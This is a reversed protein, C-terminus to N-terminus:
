TTAPPPEPEAPRPGENSAADSSAPEDAAGTYLSLAAVGHRITRRLTLQGLQAPPKREHHHEWVLVSKSNVLESEALRDLVRVPETDSYPPDALVLDYTDHLRSIAQEAAVAHVTARGALGTAALNAEILRRAAPKSEVFDVWEAGRSLAEIGLAGAGAYLELVRPWAVGAAFIPEGEDDEAPEFGRRFALAELASFLAGKVKDGTPRLGPDPLSRLQRGRAVGAIVRM